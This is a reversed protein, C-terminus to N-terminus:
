HRQRREDGLGGRAARVPRADDGRVAVGGANPGRDRGDGLRPRPGRRHLRARPPKPAIPSAHRSDTTTRFPRKREARVGRQRMLREVRKKGVRVGKARLTALVRPSGYTRRSRAHVAVIEVTLREDSRARASQPRALWAYFGSPSVCLVACLVAIPFAAKQALIFAFKM